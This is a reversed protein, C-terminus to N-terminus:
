NLDEWHGDEEPSSITSYPTMRNRYEERIHPGVNKKRELRIYGATRKQFRMENAELNKETM